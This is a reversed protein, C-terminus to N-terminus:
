KAARAISGPDVWIVRARLRDSGYPAITEFLVRGGKAAVEAKKAALIRAAEAQAEERSHYHGDWSGGYYAWGSEVNCAFLSAWYLSSHGGDSVLDLTAHKRYYDNQTLFAVSFGNAYTDNWSRVNTIGLVPFKLEKFLAALNGAIQSVEAGTLDAFYKTDEADFVKPKKVLVEHKNSAVIKCFYGVYGDEGPKTDITGDVSRYKPKLEDKKAAMADQADKHTRFLGYKPIYFVDEDGVTETDNDAKVLYDVQYTASRQKASVVKVLGQDAFSKFSSGVAQQFAQALKDASLFIGSMYSKAIFDKDAADAVPQGAMGAQRSALNRAASLTGHVDFEQAHLAVAMVLVNGAIVSLRVSKKM